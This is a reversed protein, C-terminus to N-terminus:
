RETSSSPAGAADLSEPSVLTQLEGLQSSLASMQSSLSGVSSRVDDMRTEYIRLAHQASELEATAAGLESELVRTRQFQNALVVGGVALALALLLLLGGSGRAEPTGLARAEDPAETPEPPAEQALERADDEHSAEEPAEASVVALEPPTRSEAVSV